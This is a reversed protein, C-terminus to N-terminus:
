CIQREGSSSEEPHPERGHGREDQGNRGQGAGGGCAAPLHRLRVDADRIRVLRQVLRARDVQVHRLNVEPRWANAELHRRRAAIAFDDPL